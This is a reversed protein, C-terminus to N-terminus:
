WIIVNMKIKAIRLLVDELLIVKVQLSISFIKTTRIIIYLVDTIKGFKVFVKERKKEKKYM